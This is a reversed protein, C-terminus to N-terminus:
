EHFAKCIEEGGAQVEEGLKIGDLEGGQCAYASRSSMSEYKDPVLEELTEEHERLAGVQM